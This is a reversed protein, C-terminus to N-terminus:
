KITKIKNEYPLDERKVTEGTPIVNFNTKSKNLETETKLQNYWGNLVTYLTRESIGNLLREIALFESEYPAEIPNYAIDFRIVRDELLQESGITENQIINISIILSILYESVEYLQNYRVPVSEYSLITGQLWIQAKEETEVQLSGSTNFIIQLKQQLRSSLEGKLTDNDFLSVYLTRYSLVQKDEGKFSKAIATAVNPPEYRVNNSTTRCNFILCLIFFYYSYNSKFM